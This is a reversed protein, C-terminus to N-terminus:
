KKGTIKEIFIGVDEIGDLPDKRMLQVVAILYRGKGAFPPQMKLPVTQTCLSGSTEGYPKGDNRFLPVECRFSTDIGNGKVLINLWLNSFEYTKQHRVSVSWAYTQNEDAITVPYCLTDAASWGKVNVTEYASYFHGPRCGAIFFVICCFFLYKM